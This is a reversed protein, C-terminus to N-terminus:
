FLPPHYPWAAGPSYLIWNPGRMFAAVYILAIIVLVIITFVINQIKRSSHFWVGIAEPPSPDVYPWVALAVVVFGPILMGGIFGGNLTVSGLRITTDAILEQLWLFYWPAKTPNPVLEPNAPAELPMKLLCAFLVTVAFTLAFVWLMRRILHPNAYLQNEPDLYASSTVTYACDDSTGLLTYSKDAAPEIEQVAAREIAADVCALGGDKRIRWMHIFFGLVLLVPLFICHLIYFRLLASQGIETGGILLSKITDGIVPAQKAVNSGIVLAWYALQDWPLLYGSYSLALTLVLLVIGILWNIRRDAKVMKPSNRYAATYFTRLLHIFVVAVMFHAAMRHVGRLLWGYSVVYHIDKMSLYAQNVSPVYLFMLMIGTATMILFLSMSITGLWFSYSFDFSRKLIKNPFWHLLLNDIISDSAEKRSGPFFSAVWAKAFNM